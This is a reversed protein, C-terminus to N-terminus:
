AIWQQSMIINTAIQEKIVPDYSELKVLLGTMGVGNPHYIYAVRQLKASKILTDASGTQKDTLPQPNLTRRTFYNM